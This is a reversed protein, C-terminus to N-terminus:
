AALLMTMARDRIDSGAIAREMRREGKNGRANHDVLATVANFFGWKTGAIRRDNTDPQRRFLEVLKTQNAPVVRGSKAEYTPFLRNALEEAAQLRLRQNALALAREHFTGFYRRANAIV